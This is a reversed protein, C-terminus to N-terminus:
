PYSVALVFIGQVRFCNAHRNESQGFGNQVAVKEEVTEYATFTGDM